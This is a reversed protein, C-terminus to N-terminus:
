LRARLPLAIALALAALEAVLREPWSRAFKRFYRAFSRAKAHALFGPAVDSSSRYHVGHPGPLFLVAGGADEIRRCLDVDEMHLFYGKDFGGLTKFDAARIAMLAGSVAGVKAAAKPLPEEHMHINAGRPFGIATALASGLTIRRRRSGRDPAGDPTRLDGGVVALPPASALADLLAEAAGPNLVADPNVFLLAGASTDAAAKNCAAAFGLNSSQPHYRLRAHQGALEKLRARVDDPNGNDIVEVTKVAPSSLLAALAEFLVLGTRYTVVIASAKM